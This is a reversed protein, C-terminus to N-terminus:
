GFRKRLEKYVASDNRKGVILVFIWTETVQYIICYEGSDVRWASKYGSLLQADQPYPNLLLGEIKRAIQNGHKKPLERLFKETRPDFNSKRM